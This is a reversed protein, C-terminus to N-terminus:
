SCIALHKQPYNVCECGDETLNGPPGETKNIVATGMLLPCFCDLSPSIKQFVCWRDLKARSPLPAMLNVEDDAVAQNVANESFHGLCPSGCQRYNAPARGKRKLDDPENVAVLWTSHFALKYINIAAIV